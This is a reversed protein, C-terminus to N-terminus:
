NRNPPPTPPLPLQLDQRSAIETVQSAWAVWQRMAETLARERDESRDARDAHENVLRELVAIREELKDNRTSLRLNERGQADLMSVNSQTAQRPEAAKRAHRQQIATIIAPVIASTLLAGVITLIQDASM